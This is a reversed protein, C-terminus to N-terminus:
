SPSDENLLALLEQSIRDQYKYVRLGFDSMLNQLRDEFGDALKGLLEDKFLKLIPSTLIPLLYEMLIPNVSPSNMESKLISINVLRSTNKDILHFVIDVESEGSFYKVFKRDDLLDQSRSHHFIARVKWQKSNEEIIQHQFNLLTDIEFDSSKLELELDKLKEPLVKNLHERNITGEEENLAKKYTEFAKEFKLFDDSYEPYEPLYEFEIGLSSLTRCLTYIRCWQIEEEGSLSRIQSLRSELSKMQHKDEGLLGKLEGFDNVGGFICKIYDDQEKLGIMAKAFVKWSNGEKKNWDSYKKSLDKSIAPTIMVKSSLKLKLKELERENM